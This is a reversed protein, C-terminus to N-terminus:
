ETDTTDPLQENREDLIAREVLEADGSGVADHAVLGVRNRLEGFHRGGRGGDYVRRRISPVVVARGPVRHGVVCQQRASALVGFTEGRDPARTDFSFYNLLEHPRVESSRAPM